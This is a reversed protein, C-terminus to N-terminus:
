PRLGPRSGSSPSRLAHPSALRREPWRKPMPRVARWPRRKKLRTLAQGYKGGLLQAYGLGTLSLAEGEAEGLKRSSELASAFQREAGGLDGLCERVEALNLNAMKIGMLTRRQTEVSLSQELADRAGPLDGLIRRVVGIGNWANGIEV